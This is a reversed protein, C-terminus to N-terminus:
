SSDLKLNKVLGRDINLTLVMRELYGRNVFM